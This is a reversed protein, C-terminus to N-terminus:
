RTMGDKNFHFAKAANTPGQIPVWRHGHMPCSTGRDGDALLTLDKLRKFESDPVHDPEVPQTGEFTIGSARANPEHKM